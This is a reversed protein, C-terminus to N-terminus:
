SLRILRANGSQESLVQSAFVLNHRRLTRLERLDGNGSAGTIQPLRTQGTPSGLVALMSGVGAVVVIAAAAAAVQVSRLATRRRRPLNFSRVPQEFTAARLERTFGELSLAFAECEACRSRHTRLLASELESLEGDLRLSALERARECQTSRLGRVWM